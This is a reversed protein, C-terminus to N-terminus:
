KSQGQHAWWLRECQDKSMLAKRKMSIRLRAQYCRLWKFLWYFTFHLKWNLPVDDSISRQWDFWDFEANSSAKFRSADGIKNWFSSVEWCVEIFVLRHATNMDDIVFLIHRRCVSAMSGYEFILGDLECNLYLHSFINVLVRLKFGLSM